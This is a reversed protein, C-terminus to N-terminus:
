FNSEIKDICFRSSTVTSASLALSSVGIGNLFIAFASIIFIFKACSIGVSMLFVGDTKICESPPVPIPYEAICIRPESSVLTFTVILPTGYLSESDM